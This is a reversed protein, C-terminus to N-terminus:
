TVITKGLYQYPEQLVIFALYNCSSSKTLVRSHKLIPQLKKDHGNNYIKHLWTQYESNGFYLFSSISKANRTVFVTPYGNYTANQVEEKAEKMYRTLYNMINADRSQISVFEDLFSKKSLLFSCFGELLCITETLYKRYKLFVEEISLIMTDRDSSVRRPVLFFFGVINGKIKYVYISYNLFASSIKSYADEKSYGLKDIMLHYVDDLDTYIAKRLQVSSLRSVLSRMELSMNIGKLKLKSSSSLYGKKIWAKEASTMYNGIIDVCMLNTRHVYDVNEIYKNFTRAIDEMYEERLYPYYYIPDALMNSKDVNCDKCLCILNEERNTGGKSIPIIHDVTTNENTLKCGCHGCKDSTKLKIFEKDTKTFTKRETIKTRTM